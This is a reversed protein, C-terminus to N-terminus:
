KKDLETNFSRFGSLLPNQKTIAGVIDGIALGLIGNYVKSTNFIYEFSREEHKIRDIESVLRAKLASIKAISELRDIHGAEKTIRSNHALVPALFGAYLSTIYTSGSIPALVTLM